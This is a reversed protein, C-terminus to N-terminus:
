TTPDAFAAGLENLATPTLANGTRLFVVISDSPLPVMERAVSIGSLRMTRMRTIREHEISSGLM